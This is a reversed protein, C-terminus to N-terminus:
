DVVLPQLSGRRVLRAMARDIPMTLKGSATRSYQNLRGQEKAQIEFLETHPYQAFVKERSHDTMKGLVQNTAVLLFILLVTLLVLCVTLLMTPPKDAEMPLESEHDSSQLLQARKSIGYM